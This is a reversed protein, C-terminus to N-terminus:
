NKRSDVEQLASLRALIKTNDENIQRQSEMFKRFEIKMEKIEEDKQRQDKKFLYWVVVMMAPFLWIIVSDIVQESEM